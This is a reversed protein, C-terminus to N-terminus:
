RVLRKLLDIMERVPVPKPLFASAGMSIMQPGIDAASCVLIPIQRTYRSAKLNELLRSGQDAEWQGEMLIAFPNLYRVWSTVKDPEYLPVIQYGVDSLFREYAVVQKEEREVVLLTRRTKDLRLNTLEPIEESMPGEVPVYFTFVSGKGPESDVWIRGGHLEVMTRSIPMGLGTGQAARTSSSDVQRFSEFVLDLKDKPIGVGTDSVSIYVLDEEHWIRLTISGEETFKAANSLLNRMVQRIRASDARVLPLGEEYEQILELGKDSIQVSQATVEKKVVEILDVDNELILEMRGAEIKSMDLVDNILLLLNQGNSYIAELDTRQLDTLPGDIGKLIVRSFGIISNLPTRLEHSMTALFEARFKDTERLQEAVREVEIARQQITEFLYANEIAMSIQENVAQIVEQEETTLDRELGLEQLGLVGIPEGGRDIPALFTTEAEGDGPKKWFLPTKEALVQEVQEPVDAKQIGPQNFVFDRQRRTAMYNGWTERMLRRQLVMVEALREQADQFLRANELSVGMQTAVSEVLAVAEPTWVAQSEPDSVGLVGLTHGGYSIPVVVSAQDVLPRGATEVQEMEPLPRHELPRVDGLEWRYGAYELQPAFRQWSDSVYRQRLQELDALARRTEEASRINLIGMAVQDAISILVAMVQEDLSRESQMDLVGVLSGRALLPLALEFCAQPGIYDVQSRGQLDEQQSQRRAACRGITTQEQVSARYGSAVPITVSAARLVLWKDTEDMLFWAAHAEFGEELLQVARELLAEIGATSMILRSIAAAASLYAERQALERNAQELQANLRDQTELSARLENRSQVLEQARRQAREFNEMAWRMTAFLPSSTVYALGVSVLSFIMGGWVLSPLEQGRLWPLIVACIIYIGLVPWASWTPLLMGTCTVVFVFAFSLSYWTVQGAVNTLQDPSIVALPLAFALSNVLIFLWAAGGDRHRRLGYWAAGAAVAWLIPMSYWFPHSDPTVALLLLNLLAAGLMIKWLLSLLSRRFDIFRVAGSEGTQGATM